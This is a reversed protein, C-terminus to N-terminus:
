QATAISVLTEPRFLDLGYRVTAHWADMKKEHVRWAEIDPEHRMAGIFTDEGCFMNYVPATITDVGDIATVGTATQLMNSEYFSFGLYTGLASTGSLGDKIHSNGGYVDQRIVNDIQVLQYSVTPDVYATRGGKMANSKDLALKAKAIDQLTIVGSTGSGPLRHARGDITNTDAATQKDVLASIDFEKKEMLARTLKGVFNSVVEGVYFSDDKFKDTISFGSQYYKDIELTFEGTSVDDLTVESGETYDRVNLESLTPIHLTNGDPFDQSVWRIKKDLMLEEQLIDKIENSWLDTRIVSSNSTTNIGM